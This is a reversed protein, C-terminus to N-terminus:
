LGRIEINRFEVPHSESQLSIYGGAILLNTGKIFVKAQADNPDYQIQSYGIAEQGNIRHIVKGDAHCEIEAKVWVDGKVAPIISDTCHRTVLKGDMVVNTGPTCLNGTFRPGDVDGGLLQVESSIPFDQDKLISKPEQCHIMVGSNQYAWGPGDPLQKGTFRYELRMIYSSYPKKYYLHGFRDQFKGGYGDYSVQITGNSVRFTKAFNDGLEYGKIKATWGNLSKGDFMKTWKQPTILNACLLAEILM